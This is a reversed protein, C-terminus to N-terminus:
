KSVLDTIKTSIQILISLVFVLFLILQTSASLVSSQAKFFITMKILKEGKRKMKIIM